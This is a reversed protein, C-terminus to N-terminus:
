RFWLKTRCLYNLKHEHLQHQHAPQPKENQCGDTELETEMTVVLMSLVSVCINDTIM